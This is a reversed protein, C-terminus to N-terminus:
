AGNSVCASMKVEWILVALTRMTKWRKKLSCRGIEDSKNSPLYGHGYVSM